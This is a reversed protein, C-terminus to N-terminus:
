LFCLHAVTLSIKSVDKTKSGTRVKCVFHFSGQKQDKGQHAYGVTLLFLASCEM